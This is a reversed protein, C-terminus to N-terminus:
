DKSGYTRNTMYSVAFRSNDFCQRPYVSDPKFVFQFSVNGDFQAISIGFDIPTEIFLALSGHTVGGHTGIFFVSKNHISEFVLQNPM